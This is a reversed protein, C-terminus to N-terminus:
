GHMQTDIVVNAVAIVNSEQRFAWKIENTNDQKEATLTIRKDREAFHKYNMEVARIHSTGARRESAVLAAEIMAMSVVHDGPRNFLFQDSETWEFTFGGDDLPILYEAPWPRSVTQQSLSRRRLARYQHPALSLASIHGRAVVDNKNVMEIELGMRFPKTNKTEVEVRGVLDFWINGDSSVHPPEALWVLGFKETVLHWDFPMGVNVHAMLFGAQRFVELALVTSLIKEGQAMRDHSVPVCAAANMVRGDFVYDSIFVDGDRARHVLTRDIM